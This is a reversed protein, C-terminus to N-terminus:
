LGRQLQKRKDQPKAPSPAPSRGADTAAAPQAPPAAAPATQAMVWAKWRAVAEGRVSEEARPDFGMDLKSQSKLMMDCKRRVVLNPDDLGNLLSPLAEKGLEMLRGEAQESQLGKTSGLQEILERHPDTAVAVTADSAVLGDDAPKEDACRDAVWKYRGKEAVWWKELKAVLKVRDAPPVESKCGWDNGTIRELLDRAQDVLRADTCRLVSCLAHVV